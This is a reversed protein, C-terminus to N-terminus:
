KTFKFTTLVSELKKKIMTAFTPDLPKGDVGNNNAMSIGITYCARNYYTRYLDTILRHGLGAERDQIFYFAIGNISKQTPQGGSGVTKTCDEATIPPTIGTANSSTSVQIELAAMEFGNATKEGIYYLCVQDDDHCKLIYSLATGQSTLAFDSPYTFSYNYQPNTYTKWDATVVVGPAQNRISWIGFGGLIVVIIVLIIIKTKM